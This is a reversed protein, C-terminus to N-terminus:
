GAVNLYLFAQLWAMKLQFESNSQVTGNLFWQYELFDTRILSIQTIAHYQVM